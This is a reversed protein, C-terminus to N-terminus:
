NTLLRRIHKVAAFQIQRFQMAALATAGSCIRSLLLSLVIRFGRQLRFITACLSEFVGLVLSRIGHLVTAVFYSEGHCYSSPIFVVRLCEYRWALLPSQAPILLSFDFRCRHVLGMEFEM